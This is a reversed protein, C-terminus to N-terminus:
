QLDAGWANSAAEKFRLLSTKLSANSDNDGFPITRQSCLAQLMAKRTEDSHLVQTPVPPM